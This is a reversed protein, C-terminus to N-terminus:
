VEGYEKSFHFGKNVFEIASAFDTFKYAEEINETLQIENEDNRGKFYLRGPAWAIWYTRKAIAPNSRIPNFITKLKNFM